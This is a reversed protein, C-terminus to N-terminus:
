AAAAAIPRAGTYDTSHLSVAAYVLEKIRESLDLGVQLGSILDLLKGYESGYDLTAAARVTVQIDKDAEPLRRGKKLEDLELILEGVPKADLHIEDHTFRQLRSYALADKPLDHWHSSEM